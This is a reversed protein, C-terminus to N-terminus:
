ISSYVGFFLSFSFCPGGQPRRWSGSGWPPDPAPSPLGAGDGDQPHLRSLKGWGLPEGSGEWPMAPVLVTERSASGGAGPSVALGNLVPHGLMSGVQGQTQQGWEKGTGARPLHPAGQVRLGSSPSGIGVALTHSSTPGAQGARLM